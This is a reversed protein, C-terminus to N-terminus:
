LRDRPSPFVSRVLSRLERLLHAALADLLDIAWTPVRLERRAREIQKLMENTSM